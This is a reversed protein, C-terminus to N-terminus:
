LKEKRNDVYTFTHAVQTEPMGDFIVKVDGPTDRRPSYCEYLIDSRMEARTAPCQGFYFQLRPHFDAGIIAIRTEKMIEGQEPNIRDIRPAPLRQQPNVPATLPHLHHPITSEPPTFPLTSPTPAASGPDASPQAPQHPQLSDNVYPSTYQDLAEQYNSSEAIPRAPPVSPPPADYDLGPILYLTTPQNSVGSRPALSMDGGINGVAVGIIHGEERATEDNDQTLPWQQLNIRAPSVPPHSSIVDELFRLWPGTPAPSTDAGRRESYHHQLASAQNDSPEAISYTLSRPPVDRDLASPPLHQTPAGNGPAFSTSRADKKLTIHANTIKILPTMGLAIEKRQSDVVKFQLRPILRLRLVWGM